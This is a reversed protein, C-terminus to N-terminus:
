HGTKKGKHDFYCFIVVHGVISKYIFGCVRNSSSLLKIEHTFLKDNIFFNTLRKIGQSGTGSKVENLNDYINKLNSITSHYNSNGNEISDNDWYVYYKNGYRGDVKHIDKFLIDKSPYKGFSRATFLVTNPDINITTILSENKQTIKTSSDKLFDEGRQSFQDDFCDNKKKTSKGINEAGYGKVKTKQFENDRNDLGEDYNSSLTSANNYYNKKGRSSTSIEKNVEFEIQLSPLDICKNFIKIIDSEQKFEKKFFEKIDHKTRDFNLKNKYNIYAGIILAASILFAIVKYWFSMDLYFVTGFILVSLCILGAVVVTLKKIDSDNKKMEDIIKKQELINELLDHNVCESLDKSTIEFFLDSLFDIVRDYGIIEEVKNSQQDFKVGRIDKEGIQFFSMGEVPMWFRANQKVTYKKSVQKVFYPNFLTTIISSTNIDNNSLNDFYKKMMKQIASREHITLLIKASYSDVKHTRRANPKAVTSIVKKMSANDAHNLFNEFQKISHNVMYNIFEESNVCDNKPDLILFLSYFKSAVVSFNDPKMFEQLTKKIDSSIERHTTCKLTLESKYELQVHESYFDSKEPNLEGQAKNANLKDNFSHGSPTKSLHEM